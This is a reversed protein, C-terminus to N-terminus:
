SQGRGRARVRVIGGVSAKVPGELREIAKNVGAEIRPLRECADRGVVPVGAIGEQEGRGEGVALRHDDRARGGRARGSRARNCRARHRWDVPVLEARGAAVGALCIRAGHM